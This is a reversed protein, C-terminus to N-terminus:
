RRALADLFGGQERHGGQRPSPVFEVDVAPLRKSEPRGWSYRPVRPRGRGPRPADAFRDEYASCRATTTTARRDLARREATFEGWDVSGNGADFCSSGGSSRRRPASGLVDGKQIFEDLEIGDNGDEDAADFKKKMEHLADLDQAPGGRFGVGGNSENPPM